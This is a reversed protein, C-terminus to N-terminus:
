RHGPQSHAEEIRIRWNYAPFVPTSRRPPFQNKAIECSVRLSQSKAPAFQRPSPELIQKGNERQLNRTDLKLSMATASRCRFELPEETPAQRVPSVCHFR